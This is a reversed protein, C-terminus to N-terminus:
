DPSRWFAWAAFTSGAAVVAFGAMWGTANIPGGFWELVNGVAVPGLFGTAFGALAYPALAAGRQAPDAAARSAADAFLL